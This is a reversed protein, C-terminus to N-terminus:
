PIASFLNRFPFNQRRVASTETQEIGIYLAFLALRLFAQATRNHNALRKRGEQKAL